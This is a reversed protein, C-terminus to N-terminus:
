EGIAAIVGISVDNDAIITVGMGITDIVTTSVMGATDTITDV